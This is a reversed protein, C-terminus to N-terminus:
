SISGLTLFLICFGVTAWSAGDKIAFTVPDSHIKKREALFWFRMLWYIFLPAIMWLWMPHPYFESVEKSNAIYLLFVLVSLFGSTIGATQVLHRDDFRYYRGQVVESPKAEHLQLEVYRKVFALSLFFFSSFALLWPSVPIDVAVGGAFIRLGYFLSLLIVDIMLWHKFVLSYLLVCVIYLTLILTFRDPLFVMSAAFAAILLVGAIVIGTRVSFAGSAFPRNKKVPHKRDAERDFLDNILYMASSAMSMLCFAVLLTTFSAPDNLKHALVLPAFLLLNKVWQHPRLAKLLSLVPSNLFM